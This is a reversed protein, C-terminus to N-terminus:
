ALEFCLISRPTLRKRREHVPQAVPRLGVEVLDTADAMGAPM